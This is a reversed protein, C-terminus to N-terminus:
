RKWNNRNNRNLKRKKIEFNVNEFIWPTKDDYRFSINKFYITKNFDLPEIIKSDIYDPIKQSLLELIDSLAYQNGIVVSWNGYIQQIIPLLRQAGLALFALISLSETVNGARSLVLVFIAILVLGLSEMAYRPFQNIFANQVFGIRVKNVARDYTEVYVNQSGDLLVDRISGLGEQLIKVVQNQEKAVISSNKELRRRSFWAILVYAFGFSSAAALALIPDVIILTAVIAIFLFLSTFFVSISTLVATIAAVKQTIGSIIESSSRSIHVSYPQFLTRKYLEVSLDAGCGNGFQITAWVLFLRLSGALIAAIGFAIALPIVLDPGNSVGILAAFNSVIQYEM